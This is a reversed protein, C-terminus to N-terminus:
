AVAHTNGMGELDGLAGFYAFRFVLYLAFVVANPVHFRLRRRLPERRLVGDFLLLLVPVLAASQKALLALAMCIASLARDPRTPPTARRDRHLPMAGRERRADAGAVSGGAGDPNDRCAGLRQVRAELLFVLIGALAHLLANALHFTVPDAGAVRYLLAYVLF